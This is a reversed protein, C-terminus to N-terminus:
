SLTTESQAQYPDYFIGLERRRVDDEMAGVRILGESQLEETDGYWAHLLARVEYNVVDTLALLVDIMEDLHSHGTITGEFQGRLIHLPHSPTRAQQIFLAPPILRSSSDDDGTLHRIITSEQELSRIGFAWPPMMLDWVLDESETSSLFLGLPRPCDPLPITSILASHLRVYRAVAYFTDDIATACEQTGPEAMRYERLYRAIEGAIGALPMLYDCAYSYSQELIKERANLQHQTHLTMLDFLWKVAISLAAAATTILVGALSAEAVSEWGSPWAVAVFVVEAVLITAIILGGSVPLPRRKIWDKVRGLV